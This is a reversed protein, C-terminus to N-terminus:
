EVWMVISFVFRAGIFNIASHAFGEMSEYDEDLWLQYDAESLYILQFTVLQTGNPLVIEDGPGKTVQQSDEDVYIIRWTYNDVDTTAAAGTGLTIEASDFEIFVELGGEESISELMLSYEAIYPADPTSPGTLGTQGNYNDNDGIFSDFNLNVVTASKLTIAQAGVVSVTTYWAYTSVALLLLCIFIMVLLIIKRGKFNM